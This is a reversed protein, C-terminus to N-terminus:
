PFIEPPNTEYDNDVVPRVPQRQTVLELAPGEGVYETMIEAVRAVAAQQARRTTALVLQALRDVELARAAATLRLDELTGGPGVTVTV